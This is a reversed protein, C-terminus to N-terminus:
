LTGGDPLREKRYIPPRLERFVLGTPVKPYFYTSKQPLLGRRAVARRVEAVTPAKLLLAAGGRTRALREAQAADHTYGIGAYDPTLGLKDSLWEVGLGRFTQRPRAVWRRAARSVGIALGPRRLEAELRALSPVPVLECLERLRALVAEAPAVVRHTALLLGPDRDLAIYVLCGTDRGLSRAHERCVRFRHHGDAILLAEPALLRAISGDAVSWLRVRGGVPDKADLLRRGRAARVMAAELHGRRDEAILFVPSTNARLARLLLLRDQRPKSFTREHAVVKSARATLSLDVFLGRRQLTRGRWPYAQECLYFSPSADRALVGARLWTRWLSRAGAYRHAGGVPLEVHIANIASRRLRRAQEPGIIDYPPCLATDLRVRAADFRLARFPLVRAM